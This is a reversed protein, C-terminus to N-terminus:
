ETEPQQVKEWVKLISEEVTTFMENELEEDTFKIGLKQELGMVFEVIDLSDISFFFNITTRFDDKPSLRSLDLDFELELQGIYADVIEFPVGKKEFHVRHFEERSLPTRGSFAEEVLKKGRKDERVVGYVLLVFLFIFGAIIWIM